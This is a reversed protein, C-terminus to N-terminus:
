QNELTNRLYMEALMLLKMNFEKQGATMGQHELSSQLSFM